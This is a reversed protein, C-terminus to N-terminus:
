KKAELASLRQSLSELLKRQSDSEAKLHANQARLNEIEDQQEQVAKVLPMVFQSYALSYNDSPNSPDAVHIGDFDYGTESAAKEVDQALFGTRVIASARDFESAPINEISEKSLHSQFKRTDFRYTVPKLKMIFDLGPVNDKVDFKFRADSPNSYPVQGEITTVTAAGFRVKHSANLMANAGIVTGNTLGPSAVDSLRGLGTLRTGTANSILASAGAATNNEGTSNNRLADLGYAANYIGTTNYYLSSGGMAVNNSGSVNQFMAAVGLATNNGGTQNNAMANMGTATNNNGSVNKLLSNRGNATNQIGTTNSSLANSGTATNLYGETNQNLAFSGVATNDYGSTNAQLASMGSATNGYGITNAGLAGSGNATNHYGTSNQQLANYGAATNFYGTTNNLLSRKGIATNAYGSTNFELAYAGAATNHNGSNIRLAHFGIATNESATTSSNLASYGIATNGQGTTNSALSRQGIATNQIGTTAATLANHGIAVNSYGSTNNWLSRFGIAVNMSGTTGFQGSQYGVYVNQNNTLDDTDGAEEGLFVSLGSNLLELQSKQTLRARIQNNTRFDIDQANTTGIFNTGNIATNGNVNWSNASMLPTWANATQNWYYFGPSNPGSVATLFVLMGHQSATPNVAPFTSIRPILLGDLSTPAAADSAAIDLQAQPSTTGIGVQAFTMKFLFLLAISLVNRLM